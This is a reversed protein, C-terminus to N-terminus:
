REPNRDPNRDRNRDPNRDPNRDQKRERDRDLDRDQKRERDRDLDRDQTRERDRDSGAALFDVTKRRGAEIHVRQTKEQPRGDQTWKAKVDYHYRKGPELPPSTFLRDPGQQRTEEGDFTIQADPPCRVEILAQDNSTTSGVTPSGQPFNPPYFSVYNQPMTAYASPSYLTASGAYTPTGYAYANGGYYAPTGYAYTAGGYYPSMGYQTTYGYTNPWSAYNGYAFTNPFYGSVNYGTNYGTGLGLGYPSYGYSSAGLGQVYNGWGGWRQAHSTGADALTLALAAVVVVAFWRKMM